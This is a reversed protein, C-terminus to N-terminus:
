KKKNLYEKIQTIHYNNIQLTKKQTKNIKNNIISELIKHNIYTKNDHEKNLYKKVLYQTVSLDKNIDKILIKDNEMSEVDSIANNMKEKRKLITNQKEDPAKGDFIFIPKVKHIEMKRLISKFINMFKDENHLIYRYLLCSIDIIVSKNNLIDMKEYRITYITNDRIFKDLGKIGM